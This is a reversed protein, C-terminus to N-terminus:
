RFKLLKIFSDELSVQLYKYRRVLARIMEAIAKQAELDNDTEFVSFPNLDAGDNVISGGPALIGGAVIIDFLADDYQRYDFKRTNNEFFQFFLLLRM